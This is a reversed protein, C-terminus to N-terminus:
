KEVIQIIHFEVRFTASDNQIENGAEELNVSYKLTFTTSSSGELIGCDIPYSGDNVDLESLFGTILPISNNDQYISLKLKDPLGNNSNEESERDAYANETENGEIVTAYLHGPISGSNTVEISGLLVDTDGPKVNIATIVDTTDNIILKLTGSTFENGKSTQTGSFYAWTGYCYCSITSIILIGLLM